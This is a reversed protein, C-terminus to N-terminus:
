YNHHLYAEGFIDGDRREAEGEGLDKVKLTGM